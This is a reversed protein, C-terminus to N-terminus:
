NIAFDLFGFHYPDADYNDWRSTPEVVYVRLYGNYPQSTVKGTHLGDGTEIKIQNQQGDTAVISPLVSAGVISCIFIAVSWILIVKKM